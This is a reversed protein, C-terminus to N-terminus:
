GHDELCIMPENGGGDKANGGFHVVDRFWVDAGGKGGGLIVYSVVPYTGWEKGFYAKSPGLGETGEQYKMLNTELLQRISGLNTRNIQDPVIRGGTHGGVMCVTHVGDGMIKTRVVCEEKKAM